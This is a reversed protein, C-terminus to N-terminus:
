QQKGPSCAVPLCNAFTSFGCLTFPRYGYGILKCQNYTRQEIEESRSQPPPKCWGKGNQHKPDTQHNVCLLFSDDSYRRENVGQKSVPNSNDEVTYIARTVLFVLNSM